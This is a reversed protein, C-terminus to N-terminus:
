RAMVRPKWRTRTSRRADRSCSAPGVAISPSPPGPYRPSCTVTHIGSGCAIGTSAGIQHVVALSAPASVFIGAPRTKNAMVLPRQAADLGGTENQAATRQLNLFLFFRRTDVHPPCCRFTVSGYIITPLWTPLPACEHFALPRRSAPTPGICVILRGALLRTALRPRSTQSVAPAMLLRRAVPSRARHDAWPPVLAPEPRAGCAGPAGDRDYRSDYPNKQQGNVGPRCGRGRWIGSEPWHHIM